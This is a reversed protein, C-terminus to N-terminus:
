LCTRYEIAAKSKLSALWRPLQDQMEINMLVQEIGDHHAEFSDPDIHRREIVRIIHLGFRTQVVGSTQGAQLSFASKEFEPLMAGRKFWGLDGGKPGSPGQSVEKARIAFEADSSTQMAEAIQEARARVKAKAAEDMANSFKLLIHRAHVEDYSEALPEPQKSREQTVKFLHLGSPSRIPQSIGGVNLSFIPAFRPSMASRLVWGMQGGKEAEPSQSHLGALRAFDEGSLAQERWTNMKQYAHSIEAPTPDLPLSIFIRSVEIERQPEHNAIYKRYYEHIAEASIQIRSRVVINALKGTLLRNKFATKYADVDIGQAKLVDFLQGSPINNQREINILAKNLENASVSIELKRAEQQQLLSAIKEDRARATLQAPKPMKSADLASLQRRLTDAAQGVEYCTVAQGNVIAAIGDIVEAKAPSSVAACLILALGSYIVKIFQHHL